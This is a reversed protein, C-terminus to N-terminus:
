CIFNDLYPGSKHMEILTPHNELVQGTLLM